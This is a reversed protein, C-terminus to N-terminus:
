ASKEILSRLERITKEHAEIARRIRERSDTRTERREAEVLRQLREEAEQLEKQLPPKYLLGRGYITGIDAEVQSYFVTNSTMLTIAKAAKLFLSYVDEGAKVGKLIETQLQSSAKINDQYAGYAERSREEAERERQTTRYLITAQQRELGGTRGQAQPETNSDAGADFLGSFDLVLDGAVTVKEETM